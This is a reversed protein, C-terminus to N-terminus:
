GFHSVIYDQSQQVIQATDDTFDPGLVDPLISEVRIGDVTGRSRPLADRVLALIDAKSAYSRAMITVQVRATYLTTSSAAVAQRSIESVATVSIAPLAVGQPLVGATIRTASVQATLAGANALLYRVVGVASSM